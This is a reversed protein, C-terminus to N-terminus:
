GEAMPALARLHKLWIPGVEPLLPRLCKADKAVFSLEVRRMIAIGADSVDAVKAKQVESEAEESIVGLISSDRKLNRFGQAGMCSAWKTMAARVVPDQNYRELQEGFSKVFARVATRKPSATKSLEDLCDNMTKSYADRDSVRLDAFIKSNPDNNTQDKAGELNRYFGYGMAGLRRLEPENAIPVVVNVTKDKPRQYPLYTFGSKKFCSALSNQDESWSVNASSQIREVVSEDGATSGTTASCGAALVIWLLTGVGLRNTISSTKEGIFLKRGSLRIRDGLSKTCFTEGYFKFDTKETAHTLKSNDWYEYQVTNRTYHTEAFTRRILDKTLSFYV